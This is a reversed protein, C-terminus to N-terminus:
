KKEKMEPEPQKIIDAELIKLVHLKEGIRMNQNKRLKTTRIRGNNTQKKKRKGRKLILMAPTEIGFEM